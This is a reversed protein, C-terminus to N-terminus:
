FKKLSLFFCFKGLIKIKDIIISNELITNEM